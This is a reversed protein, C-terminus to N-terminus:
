NDASRELYQILKTLMKGTIEYRRSMEQFTWATICRHGLASALHTRTENASGRAYELYRKFQPDSQGFGESINSGVSDSSEALQESLKRQNRWGPLRLLAS